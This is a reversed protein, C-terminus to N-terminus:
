NGWYQNHLGCDTDRKLEKLGNGSLMSSLKKPASTEYKEFQKNRNLVDGLIKKFEKM